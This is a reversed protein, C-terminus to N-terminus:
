NAKRMALGVAVAAVASLQTLDQDLKRDDIKISPFIDMRKVELGTSASLKEVLGPLLSSGGTVFCYNVKEASGQTVYFNINKRVEAVHQDLKSNIIALIEQPLNGKEDSTTKLDEAEEYSVGMQRQIEETILGGGIPLEKTFIPGGRKYVIVKTSQAGFDIILTGQSYEELEDRYVEEFVNSIAFVNLDVVKVSVKSETLINSFAEVVDTRAAAVIADKGGGENDGIIDFSIQSEDAGFTIYQEAEWMIHDEIEEKTGEPVNLRKTMTNPGYLGLCGVKSKIGARSMAEQLAEILESPKQIEDEIIAAESLVFAGFKEVKIKGSSGSVECVKISHAGIDIGFITGPNLKGILEDIQQKLSQALSM